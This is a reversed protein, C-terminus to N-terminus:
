LWLKLKAIAIDKKLTEGVNWTLKSICKVKVVVYM